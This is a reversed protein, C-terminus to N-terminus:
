KEQIRDEESKETTGPPVRGPPVPPIPPVDTATSPGFSLKKQGPALKKEKPKRGGAKYGKKNKVGKPRGMTPHISAINARRNYITVAVSASSNITRIITSRVV